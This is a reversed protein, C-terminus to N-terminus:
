GKDIVHAIISLKKKEEGNDKLEKKINSVVKESDILLNKGELEFSIEVMRTEFRKIGLNM